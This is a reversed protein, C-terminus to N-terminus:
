RKETNYKVAGPKLRSVKRGVVIYLPTSDKNKARKQGEKEDAPVWPPPPQKPRCSNGGSFINWEKLRSM